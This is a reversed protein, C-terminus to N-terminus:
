PSAILEANTEKQQPNGAGSWHRRKLIILLTIENCQELSKNGMVQVKEM